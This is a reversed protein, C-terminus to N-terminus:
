PLVVKKRTRKRKDYRSTSILATLTGIIMCFLLALLSGLLTVERILEHFIGWKAILWALVNGIIFSLLLVVAYERLLWFRIQWANAGVLHRAQIEDTKSQVWSMTTGLTSLMMLLLAIGFVIVIFAQDRLALMFRDMFGAVAPEISYSFAEPQESMWQGLLANLDTESIGDISYPGYAPKEPDLTILINSNRHMYSNVWVFSDFVPYAQGQYYFYPQGDRVITNNMLGRDLLIQNAPLSDPSPGHDLPFPLKAQHLYVSKAYYNDQDKYLVFSDSGQELREILHKNKLDSSAGAAGTHINFQLANKTLGNQIVETSAYSTLLASFSLCTFTAVVVYYIILYLSRKLFFM